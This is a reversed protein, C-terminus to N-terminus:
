NRTALDIGETMIRALHHIQEESIIYPPMLYSVNGLPRLLAENKLAHQYITLGRREQWPYPTRNAKDKIMEVALIMGTQRVEYVHPHDKLHETSQQMIKALESNQEIVNDESFIDLTALAAACGLPNGNYSHSHLFASLKDYDDYFAQYIEKHTLTV